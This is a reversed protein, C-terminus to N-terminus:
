SMKERIRITESDTIKDYGGGAETLKTQTTRLSDRLLKRGVILGTLATAAGAAIVPKSRKLAQMYSTAVPAAATMVLPLLVDGGSRSTASSSVQTEPIDTHVPTSEAAKRLPEPYTIADCKTNFHTATVVKENTQQRTETKLTTCYPLASLGSKERLREVALM